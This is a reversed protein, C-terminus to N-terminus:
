FQLRNAFFFFFQFDAWQNLLYQKGFNSFVVFNSFKQFKEFFKEGYFQTKLRVNSFFSYQIRCLKGRLLQFFNGNSEGVAREPATSSKTFFLKKWSQVIGVRPKNKTLTKAEASIQVNSFIHKVWKLFSSM